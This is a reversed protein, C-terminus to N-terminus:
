GEGVATTVPRAGLLPVRFKREVAERGQAIRHRGVAGQQPRIHRNRSKEGRQRNGYQPCSEHTFAGCPSPSDIRDQFRGDTSGGREGSGARLAPPKGWQSRAPSALLALLM